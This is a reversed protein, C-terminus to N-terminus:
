DEYRFFEGYWYEKSNLNYYNDRNKKKFYTTYGKSEMEKVHETREEESDYKFTISTCHSLKKM